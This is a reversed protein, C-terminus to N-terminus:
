PRAPFSAQCSVDRWFVAPTFINSQFFYCLTFFLLGDKFPRYGVFGSSKPMYRYLHTDNM